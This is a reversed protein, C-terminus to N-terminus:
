RHARQYNMYEEECRDFTGDKEFRDYFKDWIESLMTQYPLWDSVMDEKSYQQVCSGGEVPLLMRGGFPREDFSLTCGEDSLAECEGFADAGIFNFCKHRMRLYFFEGGSVSMRDIAYPKEDFVKLINATSATSRKLARLLDASSLMCGLSRCCRGKCSGCIDLADVMNKNKYYGTIDRLKERVMELENLRICHKISNSGVECRCKELKMWVVSSVEEKQLVFRDESYDDPLVILYIGSVQDDIFPKGYYERETRDYCQGIYILEKESAAYGLEEKLERLASTVYDDGAHIHGASSIDYCGPHSDKDDSRKQLLIEPENYIRRVLWIHATRHRFGKSHATQRDVTEGTPEGWEDVVDFIEM